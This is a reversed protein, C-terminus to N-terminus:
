KELKNDNSLRDVLLMNKQNNLLVYKTDEYEVVFMYTANDIFRKDLVNIKSPMSKSKYFGLVKYFGYLM